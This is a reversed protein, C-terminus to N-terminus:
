LKKFFNIFVHSEMYTVQHELSFYQKIKGMIDYGDDQWIVGGHQDVDMPVLRTNENVVVFWGNPKILKSIRFLELAPNQVHQLVFTSVAVDISESECYEATITFKDPNNVYQKAFQRMSASFDLGVVACDFTQILERSVRGMGCGFDLVTSDATIINKDQIAKILFDTEEQFKNPNHPDTTLAVHKAHELSQVDFTERIYPM